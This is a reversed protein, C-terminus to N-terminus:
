KAVAKACQACRPTTPQADWVAWLRRGCLTWGGIGAAHAVTSRTATIWHAPRTATPTWTRPDEAVRGDDCAIRGGTHVIQSPGNVTNGRPDVHVRRGDRQDTCTWHLPTPTM